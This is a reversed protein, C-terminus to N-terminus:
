EDGGEVVDVLKVMSSRQHGIVKPSITQSHIRDLERATRILLKLRKAESLNRSANRCSRESPIAISNRHESFKAM